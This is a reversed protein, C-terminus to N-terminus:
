CVVHCWNWMYLMSTQCGRLECLSWGLLDLLWGVGHLSLRERNMNSFSMYSIEHAHLFGLRGLAWEGAPLREFRWTRQHFFCRRRALPCSHGPDAWGCRRLERPHELSFLICQICQPPYTPTRHFVRSQTELRQVTPELFSSIARVIM